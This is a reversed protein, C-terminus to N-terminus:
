RAGRFLGSSAGRQIHRSHAEANRKDTFEWVSFRNECKDCAWTGDDDIQARATALNGCRDCVYYYSM